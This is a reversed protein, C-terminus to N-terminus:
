QARRIPRVETSLEHIEVKQDQSLIKELSSPDRILTEVQGGMKNADGGSSQTLKEFIKSSLQYVKAEGAADLGLNKVEQMAHAADPDHKALQDRAHEDNMLTTTEELAQCFASPALGIFSMQLALILTINM